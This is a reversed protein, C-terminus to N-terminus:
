ECGRACLPCEGKENLEVGHKNCIVRMGKRDEGFNLEFPKQLFEAYGQLEDSQNKDREERDAQTPEFKRAKLKEYYRRNRAARKEKDESM